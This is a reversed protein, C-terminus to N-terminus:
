ERGRLAIITQAALFAAYVSLLVTGELRSIYRNFTRSMPLLAVGLVLM